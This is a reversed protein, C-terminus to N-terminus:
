NESNESAADMTPDGTAVGSVEGTAEDTPDGSMRKTAKMGLMINRIYAVFGFSQGLIIVPDRRFIGYSVILGSGVLSIIWFGVPLISAKRKYSYFWQYIFRLTFVIQGSSGFLVLWFPIKENMFFDRVFAEANGIALLVAAVPTLALVYRFVAPVRALIGKERLNSEMRRKRTMLMSSRTRCAENSKVFVNWLYIYYSIFQGFIIAFDDRLWGYIFLLYSGAISLIWYITPSVVQRSRESLLWQLFLRASFFAQATFGLIFVWKMPETRWWLVLADWWASVDVALFQM